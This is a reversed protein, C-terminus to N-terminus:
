QPCRKRINAAFVYFGNVAIVATGNHEYLTRHHLRPTSICTDSLPIEDIDFPFTTEKTDSGLNFVIKVTDDYIYARVLFTDFLAEQYAKDELDGGQFLELTAIIEERSLLKDASAQAEVLQASIIRKRTELELMRDKTSETFIGAEIAALLNDISKTVSSLKAKLADVEIAASNKKQYAVAADALIGIAKDSLMTEKLQSAILYEIQDRGNNKKDCGTRDRKGKCSYYYYLPGNKSRGSIGVMPSHCHGCFLKGTLYYIGNQNRRRQPIAEKTQDDLLAKKRPNKKTYISLQVADFLERDIICPMGGPVRVDKYIYVGTYRENNLLRNFSSYAWPRGKKNKIGRANLDAIIDSLPRGDAIKTYIEKVIEAELEYIAFRGDAGRKYGYPIQGNVMCKRANDDMGRTIKQSLEKSYYEALGELVSEMLVGTPDDSINEMASLVKVGNERLKRKYVASDYRDRAFRDLTYVIVYKWRARDSDRIMKQFGPRQDSTGTIAKDDYIYVVKLGLRRAYQVCARIQQDISVDRQSHSSFRTYIVAEDCGIQDAFQALIDEYKM